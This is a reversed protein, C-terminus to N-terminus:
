NNNTAESKKMRKLCIKRFFGILVHTEHATLVSRGFVRKLTMITKIKKHEPMSLSKVAEEMKRHLIETEDPKPLQLEPIHGKSLKSFIEYLVIAVAHSLNLSPYDPSAPITLLVDGRKIEERRLGVSERGFVIAVVGNYNAIKEAFEKLTLPTRLIDDGSSAKCSTVVILSVGKLAEDLSKVVKAESLVDIGHSAYKKARELPFKPNVIVLDKFGFNKMVRAILGVNIEGEPEVLVVRINAM